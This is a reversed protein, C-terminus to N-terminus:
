QRISCLFSKIFLLHMVSYCFIPVNLLLINTSLSIKHISLYDALSILPYSVISCFFVGIVIWFNSDKMLDKDPIERFLKILYFLSFIALGLHNTAFASQIPFSKNKTSVLFIIMMLFISFIVIMANRNKISYTTISIIYLGLFSFGFILSFNNIGYVIKMNFYNFNTYLFMPVMVCFAVFNYIMFLKLNSRNPIKKLRLSVFFSLM